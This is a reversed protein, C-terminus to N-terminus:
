LALPLRLWARRRHLRVCPASPPAARGGAEWPGPETGGQCGVLHAPAGSPSRPGSLSAPTLTHILHLHATAHSHACPGLASGLALPAAPSEPPAAAASPPERPRRCLPARPASHLPPALGPGRGVSVPVRVLAARPRSLPRSASGSVRPSGLRGTCRVRPWSQPSVPEPSLLAGSRGSVLRMCPGAALGAEHLRALFVPPSLIGVLM